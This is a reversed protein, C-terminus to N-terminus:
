ARASVWEKGRKTIIIVKFYFSLRKKPGAWLESQRDVLEGHRDIKEALTGRSSSYKLVENEKETNETPATDATATDASSATDRSPSPSRPLVAADGGGGLLGPLRACLEARRMEHARSEPGPVPPPALLAAPKRKGVSPTPAQAWWSRPAVRAPAAQHSAHRWRAAARRPWSQLQKAGHHVRSTSSGHLLPPRAGFSEEGESRTTQSLLKEEARLSRGWHWSPGWHWSTTAGRRLQRRMGPTLHDTDSGGGGGGGGCAGGGGREAATAVADDDDDHWHGDSDRRKLSFSRFSRLPPPLRPPPPALPDGVMSSVTDSRGRGALAEAAEAV